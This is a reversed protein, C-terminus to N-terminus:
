MHRFSRAIETAVTLAQAYSLTPFSATMHRALEEVSMRKQRMADVGYSALAPTAELHQPVLASISGASPVAPTQYGVAAMSRMLVELRADPHVPHATLAVNLVQSKTIRRRDGGDREVVRGEVSFGLRRSGGAKQMAKATEYIERAKAKHLYLVGEVSTAPKGDPTTGTVVKEPHGLVNEPGSQHEYNFWGKNLFYSWDVGSQVLTEGQQDTTEASIMGGIRGVMPEEDGGNAGKLIDFPAWAAFVDSM